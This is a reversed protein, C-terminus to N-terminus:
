REPRICDFDRRERGVRHLRRRVHEVDDADDFRQEVIRHRDQDGLFAGCAAGLDRPELGFPHGVLFPHIREIVDRPRLRHGLQEVDRERRVLLVM